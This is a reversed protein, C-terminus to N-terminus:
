FLNSNLKYHNNYRDFILEDDESYSYDHGLKHREIKILNLKVLEDNASKITASGMKLREMLTDYGVFCFSRDRDDDKVNIHSKYYFLLRFAHESLEYTFVDSNMMTFYEDNFIEGNFQITIGKRKPLKDLNSKILKSNYLNGMRKKFTRTDYIGSNCMLKKHDVTIEEHHYNRFYLYCLRAYLLFDGNSLYIDENRVIKTPIKVFQKTKKPM